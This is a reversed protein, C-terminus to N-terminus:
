DFITKNNLAADLMRKLEEMSVKRSINPLQDLPFFKVENTEYSHEHFIGDIPKGVFVIVYEPLSKDNKFPTRDFVGVLRTIEVDLGAEQLVEKKAAGSPSDYLDCWGGPLSYTNDKSERVFLIENKENTIITRTSLNPTPYIDRQFYNPRDFKVEMFDELMKTSLENIERYNTLAYEDKSCVLGIKAISQIKIIYDYIQKSDLM